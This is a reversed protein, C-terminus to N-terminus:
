GMKLNGVSLPVIGDSPETLWYSPIKNRVAVRDAIWCHSIRIKDSSVFSECVIWTVDNDHYAPTAQRDCGHGRTDEVPSSIAVKVRLEPNHRVPIPAGM